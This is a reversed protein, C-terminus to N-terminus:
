CTLFPVVHFISLIWSLIIEYLGDNFTALIAVISDLYGEQILLLVRSHAYLINHTTASGPYRDLPLQAGDTRRSAVM